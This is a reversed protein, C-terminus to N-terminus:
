HDLQGSYADVGLSVITKKKGTRFGVVPLHGSLTTETRGFHSSASGEGDMLANMYLAKSDCEVGHLIFEVSVRGDKEHCNWELHSARAPNTNAVALTGKLLWQLAEQIKEVSVDVDTKFPSRTQPNLKIQAVKLLHENNKLTKRCEEELSIGNFNVPIKKAAKVEEIVPAVAEVIVEEVPLEPLPPLEETIQAAEAALPIEPIVTNEGARTTEVVPRDEKRRILIGLTLFVFSSFAIVTYHIKNFMPAPAGDKVRAPTEVYKTEIKTVPKIGTIDAKLENLFNKTDLLVGRANSKMTFTEPRAEKLNEIANKINQYNSKWQNYFEYSLGLAYVRQNFTKAWNELNKIREAPQSANAKTAEYLFFYREKQQNKFLLEYGANVEKWFAAERSDVMQWPIMQTIEEPRNMDRDIENIKGQVKQVIQHVSAFAQSSVFLSLVVAATLKM